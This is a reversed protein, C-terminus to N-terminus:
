ISPKWGTLPSRPVSNRAGRLRPAGLTGGRKQCQYCVVKMVDPTGHHFVTTVTVMPVGCDYCVPAPFKLAIYSLPDLSM